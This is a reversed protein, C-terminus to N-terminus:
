FDIRSALRILEWLAKMAARDEPPIHEDMYDNNHLLWYLKELPTSIERRPMLFNLVIAAGPQRVIHQIQDTDEITEPEFVRRIRRSVGKLLINHTTTRTFNGAVRGFERRFTFKREFLDYEDRLKASQQLLKHARDSKKRRRATDLLSVMNRFAAKQLDLPLMDFCVKMYEASPSSPLPQIEDVLLYGMSEFVAVQDLDLADTVRQLVQAEIRIEEDSVGVKLINNISGYSVGAIAALSRLTLQREEMIMRVVDGLPLLKKNRANKSVPQSEQSNM